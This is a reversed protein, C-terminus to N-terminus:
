EPKCGLIGASIERGEIKFKLLKEKTFARQRQMKWSDIKGLKRINLILEFFTYMDRFREIYDAAATPSIFLDNNQTKDFFIKFKKKLKDNCKM